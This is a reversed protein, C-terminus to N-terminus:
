NECRQIHKRIQQEHLLCYDYSSRMFDEISQSKYMADLTELIPTGDVVMDFFYPYVCGGNERPFYPNISALRPDRMVSEVVMESLIWKLTPRKNCHSARKVSLSIWSFHPAKGSPWSRM